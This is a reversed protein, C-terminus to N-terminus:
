APRSQGRDLRTSHGKLALGKAASGHRRWGSVRGKVTELLAVIDQRFWAGVTAEAELSGETRTNKNRELHPEFVM